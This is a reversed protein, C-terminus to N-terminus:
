SALVLFGFIYQSDCIQVDDDETLDVSGTDDSGFSQCNTSSVSIGDVVQNSFSALVAFASFFLLDGLCGLVMVAHPRSLNKRTLIFHLGGAWINVVLDFLIFLNAFISVPLGASQWSPMAPNLVDAFFGILVCTPVYAFIDFPVVVCM